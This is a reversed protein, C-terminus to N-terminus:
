HKESMYARANQLLKQTRSEVFSRIKEETMLEEQRKRLLAEEIIGLLKVPDVPKLIYDSAHEKVAKIASPLSPYGTVMIKVLSPAKKALLELLETGDIDPLKIDLLVVDYIKEEAKETAEKGNYAVDVQYGESKLFARTAKCLSRDDDVILIHPKRNM